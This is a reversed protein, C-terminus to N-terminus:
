NRLFIQVLLVLRLMTLAGCTAQGYRWNGSKCIRNAQAVIDEKPAYKLNLKASPRGMLSKSIQTPHYEAPRCGSPPMRQAANREHKRVIQCFPAVKALRLKIIQQSSFPASPRGASILPINPLNNIRFVSYARNIFDDPFYYSCTFCGATLYM